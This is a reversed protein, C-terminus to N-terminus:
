VFDWEVNYRFEEALISDFLEDIYEEADRNEPIIIDMIISPAFCSLNVSIKM